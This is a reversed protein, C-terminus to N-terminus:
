CASRPFLMYAGMALPSVQLTNTYSQALELYCTQSLPALPVVAQSTVVHSTSFSFLVTTRPPHDLVNSTTSLPRVIAKVQSLDCHNWNIHKSFILILLEVIGNFNLWHMYPNIIRFPFHIIHHHRRDIYHGKLFTNIHVLIISWCPQIGSLCVYMCVTYVILCSWFIFINKSM